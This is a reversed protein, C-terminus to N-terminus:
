SGQQIHTLRKLNDAGAAAQQTLLLFLTLVKLSIGAFETQEMFLLSQQESHQNSM